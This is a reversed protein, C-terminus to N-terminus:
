DKVCRITYGIKKSLGSYTNLNANGSNLYRFLADTTSSSTASWYYGDTLINYFNGDSNRFGGGLGGFGAQNTAGTNPSAWYTTGTAKMKGGAVSNGGLSTGVTAWEADTPIHWGAPALGRSDNVAYWNYLKGYIAGNAADNNYYCWAGTTLNAWQTPDTVQPIVDGNRYTTVELNKSTWVQSGITLDDYRAKSVNYNTTVEAASLARNYISAYGINGKLFYLPSQGDASGYSGVYFKDTSILNIASSSSVDIPTGVSIGDIYFYMMSSRSITMVLYHFKNDLYPAIPTSIINNISPQFFANINNNEIYFSYRGDYARYSTKGMIGMIGTGGDFKVWCSMTWSNLGISLINGFGVVDDVGDFVISGGNGANFIPGNTLTGNTGSGTLDTWTTGSGIYSSTNGADLNLVLGNTVMSPPLPQTIIYNNAHFMKLQASCVFALFLLFITFLKKM